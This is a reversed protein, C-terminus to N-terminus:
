FAAPESTKRAAISALIQRIQQDPLQPSHAKLADYAGRQEKATFESSGWPLLNRWGRDYAYNNAIYKEAFATAAQANKTKLEDARLQTLEEEGPTPKPQRGEAIARNTANTAQNLLWQMGLNGVSQMLSANNNGAATRAAVDQGRVATSTDAGHRAMADERAQTDSETKAQRDKDGIREGAELAQRRGEAELMAAQVRSDMQPADGGNIMRSEIVRQQAEPSLMNLANTFNSRPDRGALMNRSRVAAMRAREDDIRAQAALDRAASSRMSGQTGDARTYDGGRIAGVNAFEPLARLEDISKGTRRALDYMSREKRYDATFQQPTPGAPEAVVPSALHANGDILALDEEDAMDTAPAPRFVQTPMLVASPAPADQAQAVADAQDEALMAAAAAQESMGSAVLERHRAYRRRGVSPDPTIASAAADLPDLDAPSLSLAM